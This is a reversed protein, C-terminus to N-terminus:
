LGHKYLRRYLTQRKLGLDRATQSINGENKHLARLITQRELQELNLDVPEAPPLPLTSSFPFDAPTLCDMESLIISREITHQLERVNGPWPYHQLVPYATPSLELNPKNYKKRYLNLFHRALIPIDEIRERLPPVRIEVTNIRFLLDQRFQNDQILSTIPLNTACILRINIHRPQNSGIRYVQRNQLVTLLKAQLPLSLNGIEDLFLTGQHAIEFRGARDNLAGTFAGRTYGFLESEFLSEPIAGMDVSIFPANIRDSHQHIARAVLEKGTGNEGLILVNADTRSVKQILTQIERLARSQGVMDHGAWQTQHILEAQIVKLKEIERVSQTLKIASRITTVLKENEWPKTIYDMAGDKIARVADEIEGFATMIIIGLEPHDRHIRTLLTFGDKSDPREPSFHLDLILADYEQDKLHQIAREPVSDTHVTEITQKLLLRLAELIAEDDDIILVRGKIKSNMKEDM